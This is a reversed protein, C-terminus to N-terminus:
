GVFIFPLSAGLLGSLLSIFIKVFRAGFFAYALGLGLYIFAAIQVAFSSYYAMQDNFNNQDAAPDTPTQNTPDIIAPQEPTIVGADTTANAGAVAQLQLIATELVKSFM